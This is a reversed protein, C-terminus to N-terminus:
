PRPLNVTFQAASIWEGRSYDRGSIIVKDAYVQVSLGQSGGAPGNWLYATAATNVATFTGSSYLEGPSKLNMHTHGTFFFAQPWASLIARLEKDQIIGDTPEQTYGDAAATLPVTGSLPQHHFIFIPKKPDAGEALAAKLWSLQEGGLYSMSSMDSDSALFIFHYGSIWEDYYLAPSGTKAMFRRMGEVWGDRLWRLDHNGEAFLTRWGSFGSLINLLGDYQASSGGETLDGVLCLASTGPAALSIDRLARTLSASNEEAGDTGKIHIDSIAAFELLPGTGEIVTINAAAPAGAGTVVGRLTFRGARSLTGAPISDWTVARTEAKAEPPRLTVAAPLAPAKGAGVTLFVPDVSAPTKGSPESLRFSASAEIKYTDDWAIIFKYSKGPIWRARNSASIWTPNFSFTGGARTSIGMDTLTAWWISGPNGDPTEELEYLGVWDKARPPDRLNAAALAIWEDAAYSPASLSVAPTPTQASLAAQLGAALFAVALFTPWSRHLPAPGRTFKSKM